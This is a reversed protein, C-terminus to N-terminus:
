SVRAWSAAFRDPSRSGGAEAEQDPQFEGDVVAGVRLYRDWLSEFVVFEAQVDDGLQDEDTRSLAEATARLLRDLDADGVDSDVVLHVRTSVAVQRVAAVPAVEAVLRREASARPLPSASHLEGDAALQDEPQRERFLDIPLYEVGAVEQLRDHVEAWADLDSVQIQTLRPESAYGPDPPGLVRDAGADLATEAWELRQGSFTDAFVDAGARLGGWGLLLGRSFPEPDVLGDVDDVVQELTVDDPDLLVAGRVEDYRGAQGEVWGRTGPHQRCLGDLEAVADRPLEMGLEDSRTWRVWASGDGSRVERTTRAQEGAREDYDAVLDFVECPAATVVYDPHDGVTASEARGDGRLWLAPELAQHGTGPRIVTEMGDVSLLVSGGYRDWDLVEQQMADVLALVEADPLGPQTAVRIWQDDQDDGYVTPEPAASAVAPQEALWAVARDREQQEDDEPPSSCAATTLLLVAALGARLRRTM